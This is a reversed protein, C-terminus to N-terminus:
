LFPNKIQLDGFRQGHQLDESFLTSCQGEMAAAVILSDYWSLHYREELRLAQSFLTQSSQVALLPRFVSHLYQEAEAATMRPAFKRMAVNFFEQIVQYSIIGKRTSIAQLILQRARRVKSPEGTDFSYAFVNTDLFFRDKM